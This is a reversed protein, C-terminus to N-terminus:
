LLSSLLSCFCGPNSQTKNGKLVKTGSLFINIYNMSSPIHPVLSTPISSDQQCSTAWSGCHWWFYCHCCPLALVWRHGYRQYFNLNIPTPCFLLFCLSPCLGQLGELFDSLPSSGLPFGPDSGSPFPSFLHRCSFHTKAKHSNGGRIENGKGKIGRIYGGDAQLYLYFLLLWQLILTHQQGM